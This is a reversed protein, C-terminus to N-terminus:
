GCTAEAPIPRGPTFAVEVGPDRGAMIERGHDWLDHGHRSKTVWANVPTHLDDAVLQLTEANANRDCTAGDFERKEETATSWIVTLDTGERVLDALGAVSVSRARLAAVSGGTEADIELATGEGAPLSARRAVLDLFSDIVILRKPRLEPHHSALTAIGFGAYSVGVLVLPGGIKHHFAAIKRAFSALYVPNGWDLHRQSRLGYGLYGDEAYRGCILAYGSKRALAQVQLCYAWGGTTAMLGRPHAVPYVTTIAPDSASGASAVTGLTGAAVVVLLLAISLRANGLILVTQRPRRIERVSAAPTPRPRARVLSAYRRGRDAPVSCPTCRWLDDPAPM